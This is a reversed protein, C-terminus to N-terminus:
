GQSPGGSVCMGCTRPSIEMVLGEVEGTETSLHRLRKTSRADVAMLFSIEIDSEVRRQM